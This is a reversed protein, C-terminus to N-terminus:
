KNFVNRIILNINIGSLPKYEDEMLRRYYEEEEKRKRIKFIEFELDLIKRDKEAKEKEKIMKKIERNRRRTELSKIRGMELVSISNPHRGRSYKTEM